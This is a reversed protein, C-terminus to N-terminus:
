IVGKWRVKWVILFSILFILAFVILLSARSKKEVRYNFSILGNKDETFFRLIEGEPNKYDSVDIFRGGNVSTIERLVEPNGKSIVVKGNEDKLFQNGSLPIRSGKEKGTLISVIVIGSKGMRKAIPFPNGRRNEGDSILVVVGKRNEDKEFMAYSAKLGEEINSGAGILWGKDLQSLVSKVYLLDDTVPVARFATGSFLVIGFLGDDVGNVISKAIYSAIQLRSPEIDDALMSKSVDILFVVKVGHRNERVLHEGYRLDALALVCLLFFIVFSLTSYFSKVFYLRRISDFRYGGVLKELGALGRKYSYFMFIVIPIVIISLLLYKPEGFSM